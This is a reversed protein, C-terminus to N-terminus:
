WVLGNRPLADFGFGWYWRHFAEAPGGYGAFISSGDVPTTRLDVAAGYEPRRVSTGSGYVLTRVAYPGRAGPDDPLIAASAVTPAPELYGDFGRDAVWAVFAGVLVAPALWLAVWAARHRGPTRALAVAVFTLGTLAIAIEGVVPLNLQKLFSQPWLVDGAVYVFAGLVRGVPAPPVARLAAAGRPLRLRQFLGRLVSWLAVILGEGASVVAFGLFGTLLAMLTRRVGFDFEVALLASVAIAGVFVGRGLAHLAM